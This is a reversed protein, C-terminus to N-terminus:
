DVKYTRVVPGVFLVRGCIHSLQKKIEGDDEDEEEETRLHDQATSSVSINM